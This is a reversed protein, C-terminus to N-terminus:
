HERSREKKNQLGHTKKKKCVIIVLEGGCRVSDRSKCAFIKNKLKGEM